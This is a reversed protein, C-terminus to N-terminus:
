QMQINRLLVDHDAEVDNRHRLESLVDDLTTMMAIHDYEEHPQHGFSTGPFSDPFAPATHAHTGIYPADQDMNDPEPATIDFTWNASMRVNIRAVCPLTVRMVELNSIILFYKDDPKNKMLRMSRCYDLDAFLTELSELKALETGLNLALDISIILGRVCIPCGTRACTSRFPALLFLTPNVLNNLMWHVSDSLGLDRLTANGLYRTALVDRTFLKHYKSRQNEGDIGEAFIIGMYDVDGRPRVARPPM